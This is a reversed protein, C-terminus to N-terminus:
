KQVKLKGDQIDLWTAIAQVVLEKMSQHTIAAKVKLQQHMEAPIPININQMAGQYITGSATTPASATPEAPASPAAGTGGDTQQAEQQEIRKYGEVVNNETQKILPSAGFNFPHNNKNAM